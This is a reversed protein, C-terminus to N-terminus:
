KTVAEIDVTVLQFRGNKVIFTDVAGKVSHTSSEMDWKIFVVNGEFIPGASDFVAEEAISMFDRFWEAIEDRGRYVRSATILAGDEAFDELFMELDRAEVAKNHHDWLEQM